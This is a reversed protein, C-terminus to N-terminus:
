ARVADSTRLLSEIRRVTRLLADDRLGRALAQDATRAETARAPDSAELAALTREFPTAPDLGCARALGTHLERRLRRRAIEGRGSRRVLGAFGRVYELSSRPPRPDLPVPAGFRRGSGLLYLFLVAAVFVMARGPWTREILVFVDASPHLGHHYEDFAVERHSGLAPAALGLAFRGNDGDGLGQAIFPWLSPVVILAGPGDHAYALVPGQADSALALAGGDLSLTAGRDFVLRRAPPNAFPAAVLSHTAPGSAGAYRIGFADLLPRELLGLDSAVVVTGGARVFSRVVQADQPTVLETAGLMFVVGVRARDISFSEGQLTSTTGGIAEIARRLPAAGGAGDDYVSASRGAATGGSGTTLAAFVVTAIALVAAAVYFANVRRLGSM